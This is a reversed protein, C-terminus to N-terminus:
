RHEPKSRNHLNNEDKLVSEAVNDAGGDIDMLDKEKLNALIKGISGRKVAYGSNGQYFLQDKNFTPGNAQYIYKNVRDVCHRNGWYGLKLMDFDDPTNHILQQLRMKWTNDLFTDDEMIVFLDDDSSQMKKKRSAADLEQLAGAHSAWIAKTVDRTVDIYNKM